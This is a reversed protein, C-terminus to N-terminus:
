NSEDENKTPAYIKDHLKDWEDDYSKKVNSLLIKEDIVDQLYKQALEGVLVAFRLDKAYTSSYKCNSNLEISSIACNLSSCCMEEGCGECSSCYIDYQEEIFLKSIFNSVIFFKKFM